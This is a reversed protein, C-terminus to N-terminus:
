KLYAEYKENNKEDFIMLFEAWNVDDDLHISFLKVLLDNHADLFKLTNKDYGIKKYIYLLNDYIM